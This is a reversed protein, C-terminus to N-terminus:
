SGCGGREFCRQIDSLSRRFCWGWHLAGQHVKYEKIHTNTTFGQLEELGSNFRSHLAHRGRREHADYGKCVRYVRVLMSPVM